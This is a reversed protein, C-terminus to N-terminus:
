AEEGSKSVNPDSEERTGALPDPTEQSAGLLERVTTSDVGAGRSESLAAIVTRFPQREAWAGTPPRDTAAAFLETLKIKDLSQGPRLGRKGGRTDGPLAWELYTKHVLRQIISRAMDEEAQVRSVVESATPAQRRHHFDHGIVYLIRCTVEDTWICDRTAGGSVWPVTKWIWVGYTILAGILVVLWGVYIWILFLPLSGLVAYLANHQAFLRVYLAFFFKACELLLAASLGGVIAPVAPVHTNPLVKYIWILALSTLVFATVSEVGVPLYATVRGFLPISELRATTSISIVILLPSVTVAGWYVIIQQVITRSRQVYWIRNLNSELTSILGSGTVILVVIGIGSLSRTPYDEVASYVQKLFPEHKEATMVPFILQEVRDIFQDVNILSQLVSVACLVTAALSLITAFSLASAADFIRVKWASHLGWAGARGTFHLWEKVGPWRDLAETWKQRIAM